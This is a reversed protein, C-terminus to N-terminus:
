KQATKAVVTFPRIMGLAAHPAGQHSPSPIGCLLLYDGPTLNLHAYSTRGQAVAQAGGMPILPMPGEPQKLYAAVDEVTKGPAIRFVLMEHGEPGGNMVEWVQPGETIARGKPLEFGYDVLKVQLGAQPPQTQAGAGKTVQFSQVMGLALHPVGKADPIFCLELYTGPETLNLTVQQAQGPLLMGVGGVLDVSALAAGENEKLKTLFDAQTMHGPLRVIQLHHPEQGTNKLEFTTWGMKVSAPTVFKYDQGRVQVAAPAHTHGTHALAPGALTAILALTLLPRLATTKTM